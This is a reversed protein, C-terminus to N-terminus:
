RSDKWRAVHIEAGARTFGADILRQVAETEDLYGAAFADATEDLVRPTPDDASRRKSM